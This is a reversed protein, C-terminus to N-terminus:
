GSPDASPSAPAPDSRAPIAREVAVAALVMLSPEAAYRYRALGHGLITVLCVMVIPSVIIWLPARRRRLLVIGAIAAALLVWDSVVSVDNVTHPVGEAKIRFPQWFGWTRLLRVGMVRPLDLAHDAAYNLGKRRAGAAYIAENLPHKGPLCNLSAFGLDPGSYTQDCNAMAWLFGENTSVVVPHDFADFNRITWPALVVACAVVLAASLMTRRGRAAGAAWAVPLGLVVVLLLAEARTLAALGIAAGLAAAWWLSRRDRVAFAALLTLAIVPGYLAESMTSGDVGIATPSLATIVAAIVAVRFGGVRYGLLGVLVIGISGVLCGALRHATFGAAMLDTPSGGNGFVASVGTLMFPWAPPHAATPTLRGNYALEFPNTYGHGDLILGPVSNYFHFDGFGPAGKAFGLVYIIRILLGFVAIGILTIWAQRKV